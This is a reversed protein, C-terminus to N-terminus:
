RGRGVIRFAISAILKGTDILKRAHGKVRVTDPDLRPWKGPPKAIRLKMAETAGEGLMTLARTEDIKGELFMKAIRQALRKLGRGRLASRMFSRQPIGASPAGFEHVMAIKAETSDFVGVRVERKGLEIASRHLKQWRKTNIRVTM